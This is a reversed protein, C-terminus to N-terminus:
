FTFRSSLTGVYIDSSDLELRSPTNGDRIIVPTTEDYTYGFGAGIKMGPAWEWNLSVGANVGFTTDNKGVDISQSTYGQLNFQDTGEADAFNLFGTLNAGVSVGKVSKVPYDVAAGFIARYVDVDVM